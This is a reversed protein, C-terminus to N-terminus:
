IASWSYDIPVIKDSGYERVEGDEGGLQGDDAGVGRQDGGLVLDPAVVPGLVEAVEGREALKGFVEGRARWLVGDGNRADGGVAERFDTGWAVADAGDGVSDVNLLDLVSGEGLLAVVHEEGPAEDLVLIDVLQELREVGDGVVV